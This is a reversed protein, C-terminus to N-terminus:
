SCDMEGHTDPLSLERRRDTARIWDDVPIWSKPVVRGIHETRAPARFTQTPIYQVGNEQAYEHQDARHANWIRAHRGRTPRQRTKRAM